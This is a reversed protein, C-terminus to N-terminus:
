TEVAGATNRLPLAARNRRDARKRCAENHVTAPVLIIFIEDLLQALEERKEGNFNCTDLRAISVVGTLPDFLHENAIRRM